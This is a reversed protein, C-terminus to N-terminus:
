FLFAKTEQFDLSLPTIYRQPVVRTGFFGASSPSYRAQGARDVPEFSREARPESPIRKMVAQQRAGEPLERFPPMM